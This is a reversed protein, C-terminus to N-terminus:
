EHSTDGWAHSSLIAPAAATATVAPAPFSGYALHRRVEEHETYVKNYGAVSSIAETSTKETLSSLLRLPFRPEM